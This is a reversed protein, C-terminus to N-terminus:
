VYILSAREAATNGTSSPIEQAAAKSPQHGDAHRVPM